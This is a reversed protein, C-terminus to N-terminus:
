TCILKSFHLFLSSENSILYVTEKGECLGRADTTEAEEKYEITERNGGGVPFVVAVRLNASVKGLRRMYVM